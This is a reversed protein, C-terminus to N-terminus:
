SKLGSVISATRAGNDLSELRAFSAKQAWSKYSDVFPDSVRTELLYAGNNARLNPDFAAIAHTAADVEVSVPTLFNWGEINGRERHVKILAGLDGDMSGFDLHTGLGPSM